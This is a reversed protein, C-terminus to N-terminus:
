TNSSANEALELFEVLAEDENEATGGVDDQASAGPNEPDAPGTPDVEENEVDITRNDSEDNFM